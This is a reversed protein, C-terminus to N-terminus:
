RRNEIFESECKELEDVQEVEVVCSGDVEKIEEDIRGEVGSRSHWSARM